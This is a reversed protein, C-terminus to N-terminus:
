GDARPTAVQELVDITAQDYAFVYRRGHRTPSEARATDFQRKVAAVARVMAQEDTRAYSDMTTTLHRHGLLDQAAKLNGTAVIAQAVTHRFMHAHVNAGIKRGSYRLSSEFARYSLPKGAGKRLGVWAAALKPDARREQALYQRFLPWFDETVPVRHEDRAGKLFVTIMSAHEDLDALTMGLVGHRGAFASWDGIRQGTRYLLTLIAKDRWSTAATILQDILAPDLRAPLRWAVRRRLDGIRGRRPADRGTMGHANARTSGKAAVPQTGGQGDSEEEQERRYTFFSALVSLRHNVTRPQREQAPAAKRTLLNIQGARQPDRHCAGRKAGTRFAEIYHQIDVPTVHDLARGTTHLWCLFDTVGIAYARLTYPSRGRNALHALFANVAEAPLGNPGMVAFPFPADLDCIVTFATM